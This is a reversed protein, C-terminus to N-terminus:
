NYVRTQPLSGVVLPLASDGDLLFLIRERGDEDKRESYRAALTRAVEDGTERKDDDYLATTRPDDHRAFNMAANLSKTHKLVATIATHRLAHPNTGAVERSIEWLSKGSLRKGKAGRFLGVFVPGPHTGRVLLWARIAAETSPPLTFAERRKRGKLLVHIEHAAFDVHEVDLSRVSGQRLGLDALLRFISYNRVVRPGEVEARLESERLRKRVEEFPPGKRKNERRSRVDPVALDFDVVGLLQGVRVLSRIAALSRNITAPKLGRGLQEKRYDLVCENAEGRSFSFLRAAARATDPEGLWTAFRTLDARYALVTAPSKEAFLGELAKDIRHPVLLAESSVRDLAKM